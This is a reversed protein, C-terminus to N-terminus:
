FYIDFGIGIYRSKLVNRGAFKERYGISGGLPIPFRKELYLPITSYRLAVIYIHDETETEEELTRYRFGRKGSVEDEWKHEFYYTATLSLGTVLGLRASVEFSLTDGIDRDVKEKNRTIVNDIDDPVRKLEKAPLVVDYRLTANLILDGPDPVIPVTDTSRTRPGGWLRPIFYDAHGRFLLAYAGTGFEFDVLSDPDDVSGTPFRAGGTFALRWPTRNVFQYRFGAEVDGFGDDYWDDIRKYGFGAVDITGDGNIDLGGGLLNQIDNTTLPVTGPVVLPALTNLAANLGITASSGPGSDLRARVRNNRWLYPVNVGVTLKDTVGYQAGFNLITFNYEFSVKSDGLSASGAPLGLAAELQGLGAFVSSDLRRNDFDTAVDEPNGNDNFRKTIPLFVNSDVSARFTGKPLVAASDYAAAPPAVALGALVSAVLWWAGARSM